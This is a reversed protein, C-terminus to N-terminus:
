ERHFANSSGTPVFIFIQGNTSETNQHGKLTM